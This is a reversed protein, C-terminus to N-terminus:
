PPFCLTSATGGALLCCPLKLGKEQGHLNRDEAQRGGLCNFNCSGSNMWLGSIQGKQCPGTVYNKLYIKFNSSCIQLRVM